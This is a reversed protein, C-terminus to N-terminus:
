CARSPVQKRRRHRLAWGLLGFGLVMSAWTDPEPVPSSPPPTPPVEKPIEIPPVLITPPTFVPPPFLPPQEILPPPGFSEFGAPHVPPPSVLDILPTPQEPFIAIPPLAPRIKPLAREHPRFAAQHRFKTLQAHTRRGPSRQQILEVLSKAREIAANALDAGPVTGVVLLAALLATLLAVGALLRRRRTRSRSRRRHRDAAHRAAYKMVRNGRAARVPRM